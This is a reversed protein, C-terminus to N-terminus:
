ASDAFYFPFPFKPRLGWAGWLWCGTKLAWPIRCYVVYAGIAISYTIFEMSVAIGYDVKMVEDRVRPLGPTSVTLCLM